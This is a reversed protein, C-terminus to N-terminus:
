PTRAVYIFVFFAIFFLFHVGCVDRLSGFRKFERELESKEVTNALGGVYVRM